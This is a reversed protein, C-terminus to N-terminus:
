KPRMKLIDVKFKNQGANVNLNIPLGLQFDIMGSIVM